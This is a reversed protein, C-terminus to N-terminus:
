KTWRRMTDPACGGQGIAPARKAELATQRSSLQVNLCEKVANAGWSGTSRHATHLRKLATDRQQPRDIGASTVRPKPMTLLCATADIDSSKHGRWICYLKSNKKGVMALTKQM